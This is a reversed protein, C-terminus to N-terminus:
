RDDEIKPLVGEVDEGEFRDGKKRQAILVRGTDLIVGATVLTPPKQTNPELSTSM